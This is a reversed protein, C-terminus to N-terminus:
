KFKLALNSIPITILIIEINFVPAVLEIFLSAEIFMILNNGYQIMHIQMGHCM